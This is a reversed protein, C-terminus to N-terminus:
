DLAKLIRKLAEMMIEAPCAINMREFGIGEDGFIYGEDMFIHVKEIMFTEM